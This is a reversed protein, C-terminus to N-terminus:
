SFQKQVTELRKRFLEFVIPFFLIRFPVTRSNGTGNEDRSSPAAVLSYIPRLPGLTLTLNRKNKEKKEIEKRFEFYM